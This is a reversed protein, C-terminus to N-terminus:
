LIFDKNIPKPFTKKTWGIKDLGRWLISYSIRYGFQQEFPELLDYIKNFSTKEVFIKFSELDKITFPRGKSKPILPLLSQNEQELRIWDDLTSRAIGFKKCVNSKHKTQHYALMIKKRFDLSYARM